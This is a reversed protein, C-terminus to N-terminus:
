KAKFDKDQKFDPLFHWQPTLQSATQPIDTKVKRGMLLEAPSCQIIAGRCHHLDTALCHWISIM